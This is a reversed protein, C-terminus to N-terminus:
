PQGNKEKDREKKVALDHFDDLVSPSGIDKVTKITEELHKGNNEIARDAFSSVASTRRDTNIKVPASFIDTTKTTGYIKKEAEAIKKDIGLDPGKTPSEIEGEKELPSKKEQEIDPSINEPIKENM